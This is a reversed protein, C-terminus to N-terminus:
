LGMSLTSLYVSDLPDPDSANVEGLDAMIDAESYTTVKPVVYVRLEKTMETTPSEKVAMIVEEMGHHQSM